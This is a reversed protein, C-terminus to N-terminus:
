TAIETAATIANPSTTGSRRLSSAPEVREPRRERDRDGVERDDPQPSRLRVALAREPDREVDGRAPAPQGSGAITAATSM